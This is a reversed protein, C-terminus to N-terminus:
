DDLLQGLMSSAGPEIGAFSFCYSHFSFFITIIVFSIILRTGMPAPLYGDGM